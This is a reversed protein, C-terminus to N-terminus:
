FAKKAGYMAADAEVLLHAVIPGLTPITTQDSEPLVATAIGVSATVPVDDVASNLAAHVARRYDLDRPSDTVAVIGFEDGGLRVSLADPGAVSRLRRATRQLVQDGIHHGFTDNIQKFLNLDVFVVVVHAGPEGAKAEYAEQLGRRNLLGTLEDHRALRDRGDAHESFQAKGMYVVWGAFLSALLMTVVAATLSATSYEDRSIAGAVALVTGAATVLSQMGIAARGHVLSVYANVAVLWALKVFAVGTTTVLCVGILIAVDCYFVYVSSEMYTVPRPRAYRIGWFLAPISLCIGLLPLKSLGTSHLLIAAAGVASIFVANALAVTRGLGVRELIHNNDQYVQAGKSRRSSESGADAQGPSTIGM